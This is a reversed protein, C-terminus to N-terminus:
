SSAESERKTKTLEWTLLNGINSHTNMAKAAKQHSKTTIRVLAGTVSGNVRIM